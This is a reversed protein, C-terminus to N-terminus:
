DFRFKKGRLGGIFHMLILCAIGFALQAVAFGLGFWFGDLFNM